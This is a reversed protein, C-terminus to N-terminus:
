FRLGLVGYYQHTYWRGTDCDSCNAHQECCCMAGWFYLWSGILFFVSVHGAYWALASFILMDVFLMSLVDNFTFGDESEGATDATVGQGILSTVM